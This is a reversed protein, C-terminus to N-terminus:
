CSESRVGEGRACPIWRQRSNRRTSRSNVILNYRLAYGIGAADGILTALDIRPLARFLMQSLTLRLSAFERRAEEGAGYANVMAAASAANHIATEFEHFAILNREESDTAAVFAYLRAQEGETM